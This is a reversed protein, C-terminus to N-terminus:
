AGEALVASYLSGGMASELSAAGAARARATSAHKGGFRARAHVRMLHRQQRHRAEQSHRCRRRQEALFVSNLISRVFARALAHVGIHAVVESRARDEAIRRRTCDGRCCQHSHIVAHKRGQERMDAQTRAKEDVHHSCQM